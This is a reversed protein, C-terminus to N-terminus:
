AKDKIITLKVFGFLQCDKSIRRTKPFDYDSYNRNNGPRSKEVVRNFGALDETWAGTMFRWGSGQGVRLVCQGDECAKAKKLVCELRDLFKAPVAKREDVEKYYEIEEELLRTTHDNVLRLLARLADDDSTGFDAPFSPVHFKLDINLRRLNELLGKKVQISCTATKESAESVDIAELVQSKSNDKLEDNGHRENLMIAKIAICSDDDFYADGVRVFRLLSDNIGGVVEKEVNAKFNALANDLLMNQAYKPKQRFLYAVLATRLAGKLSSGPIYARGQGDYMNEKIRELGSTVTLLFLRRKAYRLVTKHNLYNGLFDAVNNREIAATWQSFLDRNDGMAQAIKDPNIVYVWEDKNSDGPVIFDINRVLERGSGIHVPTLTELKINNM